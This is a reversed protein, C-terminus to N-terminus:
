IQRGKGILGLKRAAERIKDGRFGLDKMYNIVDESLVKDRGVMYMELEEECENKKPGEKNSTM